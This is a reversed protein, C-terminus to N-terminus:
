LSSLKDIRNTALVERAAQYVQQVSVQTIKAAGILRHHDGVPTFTNPTPRDMILVVPTGVAAATHAPGTDNSVFLTLRAQASLLQPITLRDLFITKVPFMTRMQPVLPREEPGAFVIVRVKENRILHDAIEAFHELPWRRSEHGAGPFLGVLLTGSNAKEKRLIAEVSKDAAAATTLVPLRPANEIGLPKIVDLYRDVAHAQKAERPPRPEFNALYDLSRGPRRAYLRRPAGSLFGLLNTESLSHLDIVFDFKAKRVQGVFRFIRGISVLKAGDRLAVRDVELVDDAFGSLKVIEGAPKGVAITIRAHPFRGRIARLAPLSLVVDGLQGFDIVLINRPDFPM